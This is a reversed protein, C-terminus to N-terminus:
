PFVNSLPLLLILPLHPFPLLSFLFSTKLSQSHSSLSLHYSSFSRPYCSSKQRKRQPSLVQVFKLASPYYKIYFTKSYVLSLSIYGNKKETGPFVSPTPKLACPSSNPLLFEYVASFSSFGSASATLQYLQHHSLTPISFTGMKNEIPLLQPAPSLIYNPSSLSCLHPDQLSSSRKFKNM